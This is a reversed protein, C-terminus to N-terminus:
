YYWFHCIVDCAGETPGFDRHNNDGEACEFSRNLTVYTPLVIRDRWLSSTCQLLWKLCACIYVYTYTDIHICM